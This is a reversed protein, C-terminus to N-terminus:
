VVSLPSSSFSANYNTLSATIYLSLDEHTEKSSIDRPLSVTYFYM